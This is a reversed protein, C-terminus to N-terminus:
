TQRDILKAASQSVVLSDLAIEILPEAGPKLHRVVVQHRVIPRVFPLERSVTNQAREPVDAVLHARRQDILLALRQDLVPERPQSSSGLDAIQVQRAISIAEAGASCS